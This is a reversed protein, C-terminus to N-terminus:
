IPTPPKYQASSAPLNRPGSSFTWSPASHCLSPEAGLASSTCPVLRSGRGQSLCPCSSNTPFPLGPLALHECTASPLSPLGPFPLVVTGPDGAHSFVPTVLMHPALAWCSQSRLPFSSAPDQCSGLHTQSTTSTSSPSCWTLGPLQGPVSIEPRCLIAALSSRRTCAQFTGPSLM